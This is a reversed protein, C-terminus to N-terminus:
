INTMYFYALLLVPCGIAIDFVPIHNLCAHVLCAIAMLSVCNEEHRNEDALSRRVRAEESM